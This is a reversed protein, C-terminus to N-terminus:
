STGPDTPEEDRAGGSARFRDFYLDQRERDRPFRQRIAGANADYARVWDERAALEAAFASAYSAAAAARAELTAKMRAIAADLAPVHEARLPALTSKTTLRDRVRQLAVVQAAARPRTEATMGDPFAETFLPGGSKGDLSEAALGLRRLAAECEREVFRVAVRHPVMSREAILRRNTSATLNDQAPQFTAILDALSPDHALAALHGLGLLELRESAIDPSPIQM